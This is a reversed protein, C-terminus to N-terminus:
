EDSVVLFSADFEQRGLSEGNADFIAGEVVATYFGDPASSPIPIAGPEPPWGDDDGGFGQSPLVVTPNEGFVGVAQWAVNAESGNWCDVLWEDGVVVEFGEEVSWDFTATEGAAYITRDFELTVGNVTDEVWDVNAIWECVALEEAADSGSSGCATAILSLCVVLAAINQKRM